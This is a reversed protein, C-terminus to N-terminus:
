SRLPSPGSLVEALAQGDHAFYSGADGHHRRWSRMRRRRNAHRQSLVPNFSTQQAVDLVGTESFHSILSDSTNQLLHVPWVTQAQACSLPVFLAIAVAGGLLHKGFSVPHRFM